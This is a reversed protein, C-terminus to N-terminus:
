LEDFGMEQTKGEEYEQMATITMQELVDQSEALTHDWTMEWEIEELFEKALEDQLNEPLKSAKEFAQHLLATM